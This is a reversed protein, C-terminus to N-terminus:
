LYLPAHVGRQLISILRALRLQGTLYYIDNEPGNAYQATARLIQMNTKLCGLAVQTRYLNMKWGLQIHHTISFEM